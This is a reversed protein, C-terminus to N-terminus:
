KLRVRYFSRNEATASVVAKFFGMPGATFVASPEVVWPGTVSPARELLFLNDGQVGAEWDIGVNQKSLIQIGTIRVVPPLPIAGTQATVKKSAGWPLYQESLKSRVALIYTGPEVPRFQFSDGNMESIQEDVLEEANSVSIDDLYLGVGQATQDYYSGSELDYRFRVLIEKASFSGLSLARRSFSLEGRDDGGRQSWVEQWTLGGDSSVQARAIQTASAWGLRSFFILQSNETVKFVYNLTLVQDDPLPHALHFANKGDAKIMSQVPAYGASVLATVRALGTEAGEVTVSPIVRTQKWQYASTGPVISFRYATNQNVSSRDPGIVTPPVYPIVFDIKVNRGDTVTATKQTDSLGPLSFTVAYNGDRLLPVSYGGSNATVAYFPSGPVRVFVGGVGEGSDYFNNRNLDYFAVGTFFPTVTRPRAFDQTVVQPGVTGNTGKIVAIGVETFEANHITNRHGPPKQMGGTSADGGWDVDFAAHGHWVSHARSFVNEGIASWLYNEATIREGFNSGDTGSHGQFEHALMDNSHRRAAASLKPNLSVPAAPAILGFQSTMLNLDLQFGAYQSLVIADTTTRFLEAEGIPNARARNIYELYLQEEPTPDGISYLESGPTVSLVSVGRLATPPDYQIPPAPPPASRISPTCTKSEFPSIAGTASTLVTAACLLLGFVALSLIKFHLAKSRTSRLIPPVNM